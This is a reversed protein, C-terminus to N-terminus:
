EYLVTPWHGDAKAIYNIPDRQWMDRVKISYTLYLKNQHIAWANPTSDSIQGLSMSMACYGGYQPSFGHPDREFMAMNLASAFRWTVNRWTLRHADVGEIPRGDTFYGVPDIGHIATGAQHFVSSRGALAQTAALSTLALFGIFNRRNMM